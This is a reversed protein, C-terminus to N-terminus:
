PRLSWAFPVAVLGMGIGGVLATLPRGFFAANALVSSGYTWLFLGAPQRDDAAQRPLHQLVALLLLAVVLWGLYNSVPVDPAGPLAHKVHTWRWHHAAVM